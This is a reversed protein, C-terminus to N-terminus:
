EILRGVSRGDTWRNPRGEPWEDTQGNTTEEHTRENTRENKTTKEHTRENMPENKTTRENTQEETREIREKTTTQRYEYKTENGKLNVLFNM